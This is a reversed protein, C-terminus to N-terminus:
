FSLLFNSLLSSKYLLNQIETLVTLNYRASIIFCKPFVLQPLLEKSRSGGLCSAFTLKNTSPRYGLNKAKQMAEVAEVATLLRTTEASAITGSGLVVMNMTLASTLDEANGEMLIYLAGQNM